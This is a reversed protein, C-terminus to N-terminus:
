PSIFHCSALFFQLVLFALQSYFHRRDHRLLLPLRRPLLEQHFLLGQSARTVRQGGFAAPHRPQRHLLPVLEFPRLAFHAQEVQEFAPTLQDDVAGEELGAHEPPGIMSAAAAREPSILDRVDGM